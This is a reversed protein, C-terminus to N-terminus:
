ALSTRAQGSIKGKLFPFVRTHVRRQLLALDIQISHQVSEFSFTIGGRRRCSQRVLLLTSSRTIKELYMYTSSAARHGIMSITADYAAEHTADAVALAANFRPCSLCQLSNPVASHTTRAM